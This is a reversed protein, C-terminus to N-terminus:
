PPFSGPDHEREGDRAASARGELTSTPTRGPLDARRRVPHGGPARRRLLSAVPPFGPGPAGPRHAASPANGGSCRRGAARGSRAARRCAPCCRCACASVRRGPPSRNPYAPFRRRLVGVREALAAAPWRRKKSAPALALLSRRQAVGDLSAEPPSREVGLVLITGRRLRRPDLVAPDRVPQLSEYPPELRRVLPLSRLDSSAPDAMDDPVCPFAPIRYGVLISGPPSECTLGRRETHAGAAVTATEARLSEARGCREGASRAKGSSLRRGASSVRAYRGARHRRCHGSWTRGTRPFSWTLTANPRRGRANSLWRNRAPPLVGRRRLRH